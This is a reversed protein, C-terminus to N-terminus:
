ASSDAPLEVAVCLGPSNDYLNIKGNHYKVVAAVLSLGLGNGPYESRATEVRFFREFVRHRDAPPIGIGNDRVQLMLARDRRELIIEILGDVGTYKIANDILNAVVQFLLDRDGNLKANPTLNQAITISKESAVPEYLEVVDSITVDLEHRHFESQRNGTEIQAIKLAANFTKLLDDAESSLSDVIQQNAPDGREELMAVHNRLRTLPTRLDHAINDSVRRVGAMLEQLRELLLNISIEMERFDGSYRNIPLRKSLDGGLINRIIANFAEVRRLLLSSILAGGIVGLIITVITGRLLLDFVLEVKEEAPLLSEALILRGGNSQTADMAALRFMKDGQRADFAKFQHGLWSFEFDQLDPVANLNSALVENRANSLHYYLRSSDFAASRQKAYELMAPQGGADLASQFQALETDLNKEISSFVNYAYLSYIFGLLLFVSISLWFAYNSIFRFTYSGFVGRYTDVLKNPLM